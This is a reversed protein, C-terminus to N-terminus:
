KQMEATHHYEVFTFMLAALGLFLGAGVLLAGFALPVGTGPWDYVGHLAPNQALLTKLHRMLSLTNINTPIRGIGMEVIFGYVLALAMYRKSVMGLLTGLSSWALVALFQAGLFLPLLGALSPVERLSGALFLLLTEILVAIELWATLALHKAVLLGARTLPRTTLFGLTDAQLEERILPGCTGVCALPLMVFFYFDILWHYFPGTRTWTPQSMRRESEALRRKEFIDLQALQRGDLIDVARNHIREYCAKVQDSQRDRDLETSNGEGSAQKARAYEEQFIASLQAKQDPQLPVGGRSFRRSLDNAQQIPNGLLSHRQVWGGPSSTTLYILVPVVFLSVLTMPLRRWSLRSRWTFLWIGRLAGWFTPRLVLTRERIKKPEIVPPLAIEPTETPM